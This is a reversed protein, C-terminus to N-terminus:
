LLCTLPHEFPSQHSVQHVESYAGANLKKIHRLHPDNGCTWAFESPRPLASTREGPMATGAESQLPLTDM